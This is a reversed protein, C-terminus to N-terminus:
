KCQEKLKSTNEIYISVEGCNPCVAVKPTALDGSFARKKKNSKIQIYESGFGWIVLECDEVMEMDCRICKRM